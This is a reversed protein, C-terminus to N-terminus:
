LNDVTIVYFVCFRMVVATSAVNTFTDTRYAMTNSNCFWRKLIATFNIDYLQSCKRSVPCRKQRTEISVRIVTLSCLFRM